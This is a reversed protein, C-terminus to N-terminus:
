FSVKLGIGTASSLGKFRVLGADIRIHKEKAKGVAWLPIGAAMLGLGGFMIYRSTNVKDEPPDSSNHDDNLNRYMISGAFFSAGGIITLITGTIEMKKYKAVANGYILSNKSQGNVSITLIVALFILATTRMIRQKFQIHQEPKEFKLM